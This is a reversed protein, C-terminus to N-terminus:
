SATKGQTHDNAHPPTAPPRGPPRPGRVRGAVVGGPRRSPKLSDVWAACPDLAPCHQCLGVAQNHRDAAAEPAEGTAAPDFLDGRGLCRVGPLRPVGTLVAAMLSLAAHQDMPTRGHRHTTPAATM